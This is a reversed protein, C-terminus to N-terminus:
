RNTAIAGINEMGRKVLRQRRRRAQELPDSSDKLDGEVDFWEEKVESTGAPGTDGNVVPTDDIATAAEAVVSRLSPSVQESSAPKLLDAWSTNPSGVPEIEEKGGWVALVLRDGPVKQFMTEPSGATFQAADATRCISRLIAFLQIEWSRHVDLNMQQMTEPELHNAEGRAWLADLERPAIRRAALLSQPLSQYGFQLDAGVLDGGEWFLKSERGGASLQLTGTLKEKQARLLSEAAPSGSM